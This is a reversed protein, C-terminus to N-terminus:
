TCSGHRLRQQAQPEQQQRPTNAIAIAGGAGGPPPGGGGYAPLIHILPQQPRQQQSIHNYLARLTQEHSLGQQYMFRGFQEGNARILDMAQNHVNEDMHQHHHHVQTQDIYNTVVGQRQALEGIM